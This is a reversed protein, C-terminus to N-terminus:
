RLRGGVRSERLRVHAEFDREVITVLRLDQRQSEGVTKPKAPLQHVVRADGLLEM